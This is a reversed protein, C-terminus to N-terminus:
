VAALIDKEVLFVGDTKATKIMEETFGSKSFLIYYEKRDKKNWEVREAKKKLEEYYKLRGTKLLEEIKLAISAGM